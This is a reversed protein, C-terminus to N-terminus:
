NRVLLSSYLIKDEWGDVLIIEMQDCIPREPITNNNQNDGNTFSLDYDAGFDLSIKEITKCM